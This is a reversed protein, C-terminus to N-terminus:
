GTEVQQVISKLRKKKEGEAMKETSKKGALIREFTFILNTHCDTEERRQIRRTEFQMGENMKNERKSGGEKPNMSECLCCPLREKMKGDQRMQAKTIRLIRM